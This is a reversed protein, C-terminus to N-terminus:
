ARRICIYFILHHHNSIETKYCSTNKFFYKSNALILDICSAVGKFYKNKKILNLLNQSDMFIIMSPNTPKINFNVFVVKNKYINSYFELLDNLSDLFYNNSQLPPTSISVLLWKDKTQNSEFLIVQIKEILRFKPM